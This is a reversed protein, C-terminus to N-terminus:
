TNRYESTKGVIQTRTQYAKRIRFSSPTRYQTKGQNGKTRSYNKM